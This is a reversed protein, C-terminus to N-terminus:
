ASAAWPGLIEVAPLQNSGVCLNGAPLGHTRITGDTDLRFYGGCRDCRDTTM